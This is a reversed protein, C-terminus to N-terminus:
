ASSSSQAFCLSCCAPTVLFFQLGYKLALPRGSADSQDVYDWLHDNAFFTLACLPLKGNTSSEAASQAGETAVANRIEGVQLAPHPGSIIRLANLCLRVYNDQGLLSSRQRRGRRPPSFFSM